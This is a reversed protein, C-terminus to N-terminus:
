DRGRSRRTVDRGRRSAGSGSRGPQARRDPAAARHPRRAYQALRQAEPSLLTQVGYWDTNVILATYATTSSAPCSTIRIVVRIRVLRHLAGQALDQRQFYVQIRRNGGGRRGRYPRVDGLRALLSREQAAASGTRRQSCGIPWGRSALTLSFSAPPRLRAVASLWEFM